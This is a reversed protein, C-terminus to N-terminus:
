KQLNVCSSSRRFKSRTNKFQQSPPNPIKYLSPRTPSRLAKRIAPALFMTAYLPSTGSDLSVHSKAFEILFPNAASLSVRSQTCSLYSHQLTSHVVIEPGTIFHNSLADFKKTFPKITLLIVFKRYHFLIHISKVRLDNPLIIVSRYSRQIVNQLVFLIAFVM